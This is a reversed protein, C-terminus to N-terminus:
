DQIGQVGADRGRNTEGGSLLFRVSNASITLIPAAPADLGQQRADALIRQTDQLRASLTRVAARAAVAEEDAIAIAAREAKVQAFASEVVGQLHTLRVQNGAIIQQQDSITANRAQLTLWLTATAAIGVGGVAVPLGIRSLLFSLIMEKDVQGM